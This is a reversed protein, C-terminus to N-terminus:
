VQKKDGDSDDRQTVDDTFSKWAKGKLLMSICVAVIAVILLAIEM